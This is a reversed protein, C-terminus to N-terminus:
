TENTIEEKDLKPAENQNTLEQEKLRILTTRGLIDGVERAAAKLVQEPDVVSRVRDSLRRLVQERRARAETQQLLITSQVVASAQGILSTIQRIQDETVKISKKSTAVIFGIAQQGILLPFIALSRGLFLLNKRISESLRQDTDIDSIVLYGFKDILSYIPIEEALIGESATINQSSIDQKWLAVVDYKSPTQDRWPHDFIMLSAREYEKLGTSEIVARLAVDLSNARVVAESGAFLEESFALARETRVTLRLNEVHVSLREAVTRLLELSEDNLDAEPLVFEGVKSGRIHLPERFAGNENILDLVNEQIVKDHDYVFELLGEQQSELFEQWGERTLRSAAEEAQAQYKQAQALLRLNDIQRGVQDIVAAALERDSEAWVSNHDKELTLEGLHIGTVDIPIKLKNKEGTSTLEHVEDSDASEALLGSGAYAFSIREGREIADLYDTWGAQAVRRTREEMQQRSQESDAFLSANDVSIALQGALTEFVPLRDESLDGALSSQMDLVGVVRAGIILPVALESRTEPLLPNPRFLESSTTDSVLVPRKQVVVLGNISGPGGPLRHRRRLLEAGVEGTGSRLVLLNSTEDFLYVQTYYFSFSDQILEVAQNLLRDLNREQSLTRGIEAALSLERTREDVRTELEGFTQRVQDTMLNFTEALVGVEDATEIAARVTLDGDRVKNAVETLRLIAGTAVRAVGVAMFSVVAAILALTVQFNQQQQRVAAFAEDIQQRSVVYWGLDDVVKNATSSLVPSRSVISDNKQYFLQGYPIDVVTQLLGIQQSEVINLAGSALYRTVVGPFYLDAGGTEGLQALSLSEIIPQISFSSRLVGILQNTEWNRIPVALIVVYGGVSEDYGPPGLYVRGETGWFDLGSEAAFANQWWQEDAQAYDSTVDTAAVLAGHIDTIFLEAHDPFIGRYQRLELTPGGMTRSSILPDTRNNQVAEIWQRDLREIEAQILSIDNPYSGNAERVASQIAENLALVRLSAIQQSLLDGIVRSQSVAVNQLSRGVNESLVQSISSVSSYSIVTAGALTLTLFILVLKNTLSMYRLQWVIIAGFGLLIAAIVVPFYQEIPEISLQVVPFRLSFLSILLRIVIGIVIVWSLERQSLCIAALGLTLLFAGLSLPDAFGAIVFGVIGVGAWISAIIVWTGLQMNRRYLLVLVFIVALVPITMGVAGAIIQWSSIELVFYAYIHFAIGFLGVMATLLGIGFLGRSRRKHIDAPLQFATELRLRDQNKM